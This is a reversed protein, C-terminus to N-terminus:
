LTRNLHFVDRQHSIGRRQGGVVGVLDFRVREWAVGARRAYSRAARELVERKQADVNRDPAGFAASDRSKVEVFVLRDGEWAVLDIEGAGEPPQWNRAVVTMGHRELYRHALDEARRGAAQEPTWYRRRGRDRLADSLELLWGIM